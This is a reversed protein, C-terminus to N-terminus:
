KRGFNRINLIISSTSQKFASRYVNCRVMENNIIFNTDMIVFETTFGGVSIELNKFVYPVIVYLYQNSPTFKLTQLQNDLIGINIFDDVIAQDIVDNGSVGYLLPDYVTRTFLMNDVDTYNDIENSTIEIFNNDGLALSEKTELPLGTTEYTPHDEFDDEIILQEEYIDVSGDFNVKYRYGCQLTSTDIGLTNVDVRIDQTGDPYTVDAFGKDPYPYLWILRWGIESRHIEDAKVSQESFRFPRLIFEWILKKAMFINQEAGIDVIEYNRNNWLTKIVDGAMPQITDNGLGVDRAFLSKPLSAYQLTEDSRIGLGDIINPEESPEYILKTKVPSYYDQNADEGFLRDMRSKARYYMVPFGAIDTYESVISDYLCFEPNNDTVDYLQWLPTGTFCSPCNSM